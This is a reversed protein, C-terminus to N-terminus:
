GTYHRTRRDHYSRSPEWLQQQNYPPLSSTFPTPTHFPSFFGNKFFFFLTWTSMFQQIQKASERSADPSSHQSLDPCSSPPCPITAPTPLICSPSHGKTFPRYGLHHHPLRSRPLLHHHAIYGPSVVVSSDRILMRFMVRSQTRSILKGLSSTPLTQHVLLLLVAILMVLNSAHRAPVASPTRWHQPAVRRVLM